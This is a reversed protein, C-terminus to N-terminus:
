GPLSVPHAGANASAQGLGAACSKGCAPEARARPWDKKTRSARSGISAGCRASLPECGASASSAARQVEALTLDVHTAVLGLLYPAHADLKSGPPHGPKRATREGTERWRRVWRSATAPGIGFRAAAGRASQGAAVAGLVRERLDASYARSMATRGREIQGLAEWVGAWKPLRKSTDSIVSFARAGM